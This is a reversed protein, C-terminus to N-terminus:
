PTRYKFQTEGTKPDVDWYAAGANIAEKQQLVKGMTMGCVFFLGLIIMISALTLWTWGTDRM